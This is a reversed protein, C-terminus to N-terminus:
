SCWHYCEMSHCDKGYQELLPSCNWQSPEVEQRYPRATAPTAEDYYGKDSCKFVLAFTLFGCIVMNLIPGTLCVPSFFTFTRSPLPEICHPFLTSSGPGITTEIRQTGGSGLSFMRNKISMYTGLDMALIIAMALWVSFIVWFSIAIRYHGCKWRASIAPHPIPVGAATTGVVVPTPKEDPVHNTTEWRYQDKCVGTYISRLYALYIVAGIVIM